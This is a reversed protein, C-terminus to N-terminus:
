DDQSILIVHRYYWKGRNKECVIDRGRRRMKARLNYIYVGISNQLQKGDYSGHLELCKDLESRLHRLGDALVALMRRETETFGNMDLEEAQAAM